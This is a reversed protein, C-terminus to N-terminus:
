FPKLCLLQDQTFAYGPDKKLLNLAHDLINICIVQTKDYTWYWGIDVHSHPVAYITYGGAPSLQAHGALVFLIGLALSRASAPVQSFQGRSRYAM